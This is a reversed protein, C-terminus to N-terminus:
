KISPIKHLMHTLQTHFIYFISNVYMYSHCLNHRAQLHSSIHSPIRVSTHTNRVVKTPPYTNIEIWMWCWEQMTCKIFTGGTSCESACECLVLVNILVQKAQRPCLCTTMYGARVLRYHGQFTTKLYYATEAMLKWHSCQWTNLSTGTSYQTITLSCKFALSPCLSPYLHIIQPLQMRQLM